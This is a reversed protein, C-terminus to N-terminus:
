IDTEKGTIHPNSSAVKKDLPVGEAFKRLKCATDLIAEIYDDSDDWTWNECLEAAKNIYLLAEESGSM